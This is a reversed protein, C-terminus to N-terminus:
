IENLLIIFYGDVGILNVLGIAVLYSFVASFVYTNVENLISVAVSIKGLIEESLRNTKKLM